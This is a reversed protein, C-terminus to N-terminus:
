VVSNQVAFAVVRYLSGTSISCCIKKEKFMLFYPQPWSLHSFFMYAKRIFKAAFFFFNTESWHVVNPKHMFKSLKNVAFGIDLRTFSIYQINGIM